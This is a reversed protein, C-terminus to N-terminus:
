RGHMLFIFLVRPVVTDRWMLDEESKCKGPFLLCSFHDPLVGRLLHNGLVLVASCTYCCTIMSHSSFELM